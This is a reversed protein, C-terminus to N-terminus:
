ARHASALADAWDPAQLYRDTLLITRMSPNLSLYEVGSPYNMTSAKRLSPIAATSPVKIKAPTDPQLENDVSWTSQL